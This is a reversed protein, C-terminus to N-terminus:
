RRQTPVETRGRLADVIVLLMMLAMAGNYVAGAGVVAYVFGGSGRSLWWGGIDVLLGAGALLVLPGSLRRPWRTMGMLGAAIFTLSALALAHAHTSAVLVKTPLPEIKRSVAFRKVDNWGDLPITKAIPSKDAVKISHCSLCNRSIIENPASDGLDLNDYNEAVRDSGLWKLLTDRQPQALNDPHGRTLAHALPATTQVGHYAGKLDEMSLGPQEDRNENQNVIHQWSAALGGLVVLCVCVVGLRAPLSFDAFRPWAPVRSETETAMM